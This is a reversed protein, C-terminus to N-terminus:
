DGALRVQQGDTIPSTSSTIVFESGYLGSVASQTDDSAIVDVATRRATYRLGLPTKKSEVVLVFKGDNDERIASNPLVSDYSQSRDGISFNLNQGESVDGVVNIVVIRNKGQSKTDAKIQAVSATINSYWWSNTVTCAAGVQIKRAEESSMSIEVIYGKDAIEINAVTNGSTVSDGPVVDVSVIRGAIPATVETTEPANRYAEIKEELEDLAKKQDERNIKIESASKDETAETLSYKEKLDQIATEQSSIEKKVDDPDRKAPVSGLEENKEAIQDNISEINNNLSDIRSNNYDLQAKYTNLEAKYQGVTGEAQSQKKLSEYTEKAKTYTETVDTLDKNAKEYAEKAGALDYGYEYNIVDDVEPMDIVYLKAQADAIKDRTTIIQQNLDEVSRNYTKTLTEVKEYYEEWAADIQKSYKVSIDYMSKNYADRDFETHSTGDEDIVEKSASKYAAEEEERRSDNLTDLSKDRAKAYEDVTDYYDEEARTGQKEYGSLTDELTKIENTLDNAKTVDGSNADISDMIAKYNDAESKLRNYTEEATKYEEEAIALRQSITLGSLIDEEIISEAASIKGSVEAIKTNLDANSKEITKIESQLGRVKEQLSKISAKIVTTSDGGSLLENYEKKLEELKEEAKEVERKADTLTKASTKGTLEDNLIALDYEKKKENYEKILAELQASPGGTLALIPADKEVTDGEKVYVSIVKRTQATSANEQDEEFIVKYSENAKVTGSAKVATSLSAYQTYQASVEPLSYNMITSSFFTLLLLIVLFIIAFNKVWERRSESKNEM